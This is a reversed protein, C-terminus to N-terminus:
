RRVTATREWDELFELEFGQVSFADVVPNNLTVNKDDDIKYIDPSAFSEMAVSERTSYHNSTDGSSPLTYSRKASHGITSTTKTSKTGNSTSATASSQEKKIKICSCLKKLKPWVRDHRVVHFFFIFAGQLTNLVLFFAALILQGPQPFPIAALLGFVWTLGLLPMLIVTAKMLKVAIEKSAKAEKESIKQASSGLDSKWLSYMARILLCTNIILIAVMPAVFAFIVGEQSSLWCARIDHYQPSSADLSGRIFYYNYRSALTIILIPIPFGWGIGLFIYLWKREHAGFVKVLLNYILVAECLMWSFAALFFYHLLAAVISCPIVHWAATEIGACFTILGCILAICLNLLVFNNVKQYLDRRMTLLFIVTLVLCIISIGCGIYTLISLPLSPPQQGSVDVLVAFSTLHNSICTVTGSSEDFAGVRLGESSWGDTVFNQTDNFSWFVCQPNVVNQLILPFQLTITGSISRSTGVQTSVVRSGPQSQTVPFQLQSGNNLRRPLIADLNRLVVTTIPIFTSSRLANDFLVDHPLDLTVSPLEAPPLNSGTLQIDSVTIDSTAMSTGVIMVDLIINPLQIEPVNGQGPTLVMRAIISGIREVNLLLQSAGNASSENSLRIWGNQFREDLVNSMVNLMTMVNVINNPPVEGDEILSAVTDVYVNVSQLDAPFLVSANSSTANALELTLEEVQQQEVEALPRGLNDLRAIEDRVGRIVQSQCLDANVVGWVGSMGCARIAVGTVMPGGGLMQCRQGATSGASTRNWMFGWEPDVERPCIVGVLTQPSPCTNDM